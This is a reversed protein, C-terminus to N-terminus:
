EREDEGSAGNNEDYESQEGACDIGAGCVFDVEKLSGCGTDGVCRWCRSPCKPVVTAAIAAASNSEAIANMGSIWQIGGAASCKIGGFAYGWLKNSGSFEEVERPKHEGEDQDAEEEGDAREAGTQQSEAGSNTCVDRAEEVHHSQEELHHSGDQHRIIKGERIRWIRLVLRTVAADCVHM